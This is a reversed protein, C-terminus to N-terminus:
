WDLEARVRTIDDAAVLAAAAIADLKEATPRHIVPHHTSVVGVFLGHRSRIPTSQVARVGARLLIESCGRLVPDALVDEAVFSGQCRMAEACASGDTSRVARFFNLFESSFGRQSYITLEGASWDMLQVNGLKAGDIELCDGLLKDTIMRIASAAPLDGLRTAQDFGIQRLPTSTVLTLLLLQARVTRAEDMIDIRDDHSLLKGQRLADIVVGRGNEMAEKYASPFDLCEAGEEDEVRVGDITLPFYYRM